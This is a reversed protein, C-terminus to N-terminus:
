DSFMWHKFRFNKLNAKSTLRKVESCLLCFPLVLAPNEFIIKSNSDFKKYKRLHNTNSFSGLKAQNWSFISDKWHLQQFSQNRFVNMSSTLVSFWYIGTSTLVSFTHHCCHLQASKWASIPVKHSSSTFSSRAKTRKGTLRRSVNLQFSSSDAKKLQNLVKKM